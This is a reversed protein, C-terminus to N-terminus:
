MSDPASIGLLKLGSQLTQKTLTLIALRRDRIPEPANLIPCNHYFAHFIRSLQILYNVLQHPVLHTAAGFVEKRYRLNTILLEREFPDLPGADESFGSGSEFDVKKLISAIRAHAYQVYFVPNDNTRSAAVSLDFELATDHSKQILFFRTADSGIEGIVEELTIMEGTRKSMKVQEGNRFLSVLQGIMVHFRVGEKYDEGCIGQLAASVRPVYGHHDAGWIDILEDYGRKVKEFHYAIDVCFYTKSGDAKILVRDKSDGFLTTKFWLAGDLQYSLQKEEIRQLMEDVLGMKHLSTESFWIDFEVDISGLVRKHDELMAHVPDVDLKAVETVYSGHYGNEPISDGRKVASISARFNEIQNGADNIYFECTVNHGIERLLSAISSGMVAWRGHGIHLPGTPNASVFELNIKRPTIPYNLFPMTVMGFIARDSLKLNLFGNIAEFYIGLENSKQNLLVAMDSAIATPSMRLTKSLKFAINTAFDGHEAKAPIELTILDSDFQYVESLIDKIRSIIIQEIM